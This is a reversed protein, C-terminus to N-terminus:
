SHGFCCYAHLLSETGKKYMCCSLPNIDKFFVRINFTLFKKVTEKEYLGILMTLSVDRTGVRIKRNPIM